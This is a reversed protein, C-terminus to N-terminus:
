KIKNGMGIMSGVMSLTGGQTSININNNINRAFEDLSELPIGEEEFVQRVSDVATHLTSKVFMLVDDLDFPGNRLSGPFEQRLALIINEEIRIRRVLKQWLFFLLPLLIPIVVFLSSFIIRFLLAGWNVKGLVYTDIGVYLNDGYSLFRMYITTRTKCITERTVVIYTRQENRINERYGTLRVRADALRGKDIETFVAEYLKNCIREVQAREIRYTQYLCYYSLEIGSGDSPQNLNFFGGVNVVRQKSHMLGMDPM